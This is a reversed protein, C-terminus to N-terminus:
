NTKDRKYFIIQEEELLLNDNMNILEQISINLKELVDNINEGKQVVYIAEMNMPIIIEQNPYIYENIDLGNLQALVNPTTNFKQSISYLSDGKEVTYSNYNLNNRKPVILPAGLVPTFDILGNIQKIEDVTTNFKNAISELTDYLEVQYIQYM